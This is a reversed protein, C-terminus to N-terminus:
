EIAGSKKLRREAEANKKARVYRVASLLAVALFLAPMSWDPNEKLLTTIVLPVLVVSSFIL